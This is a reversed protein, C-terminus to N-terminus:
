KSIDGDCLNSYNKKCYEITDEINMDFIKSFTWCMPRTIEFPVYLTSHIKIANGIPDEIDSPYGMALIGLVTGIVEEKPYSSMAEAYIKDEKENLESFVKDILEQLLYEEM